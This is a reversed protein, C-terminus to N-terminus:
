SSSRRERDAQLARENEEIWSSMTEIHRNTDDIEAQLRELKDRGEQLRKRTKEIHERAARNAREDRREQSAM